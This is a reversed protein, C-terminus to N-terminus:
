TTLRAKGRSGDMQRRKGSCGGTRLNARARWAMPNAQRNRM